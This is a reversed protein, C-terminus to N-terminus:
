RELLQDRYQLYQSYYDFDINKMCTFTSFSGRKFMKNEFLIKPIEISCTTPLPPPPLETNFRIARATNQM